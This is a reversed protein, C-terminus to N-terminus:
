MFKGYGFDVAEMAPCGTWGMSTGNGIANKVNAKTM